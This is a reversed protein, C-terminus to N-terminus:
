QNLINCISLLNNRAILQQAKILCTPFEKLDTPSRHFLGIQTCRYEWMSHVHLDWAPTGDKARESEGNLFLLWNKETVLERPLNIYRSVFYRHDIM